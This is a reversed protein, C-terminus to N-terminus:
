VIKIFSSSCSIANSPLAPNSSLLVLPHCNRLIIIMNIAAITREITRAGAAAIISPLSKLRISPIVPNLNVLPYRKDAIHATKMASKITYILMALFGREESRARYQKDEVEDLKNRLAAFLKSSNRTDKLYNSVTNKTLNLASAVLKEGKDDQSNNSEQIIEQKYRLIDEPLLNEIGFCEIIVFDYLTNNLLAENLRDDIDVIYQKYEESLYM